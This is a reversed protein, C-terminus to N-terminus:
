YQFKFNGECRIKSTRFPRRGTPKALLETGASRNDGTRTVHGQNALGINNPSLYLEHFCENHLKATTRKHGRKRTGIKRLEETEFM